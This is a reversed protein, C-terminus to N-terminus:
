KPIWHATQSFLGGEIGEHMIYLGFFFSFVGSILILTRHLSSSKKKILIVSSGLITTILMMGFIVGLHFIFLYLISLMPDKITSLVLLVVAVSGALGHIIGILLPRVTHFLGLHHTSTHFFRFFHVHPHNHTRGKEQQHPHSHMTPSFFLSTKSLVGTITLIGIIVLMIGVGFEFALGLRPPIVFSFLIIPLAVLTVSISHGIGWLAGIRSAKTINQEHSTITTIAAVHDADTAHRMGLLFGLGLTSVIVSLM